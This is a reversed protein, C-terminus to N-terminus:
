APPAAGGHRPLEVVRASPAAALLAEVSSPQCTFLLVQHNAAIEAIVEAMHATRVPDFNVLVDDMVFPLPTHAVMEAALGFRLCLYLQESTGRSLDGTTLRRGAHDIIVIEGDAVTVTSYHGETIQAFWHEARALVAPQREQEYRALTDAVITRAATLTRWEEVADALRTRAVEVRLGADAVDSSRSLLELERDADHHARIAAEHADLLTPLLEVAAAREAEWRAVDGDALEARLEDAAGRGLAAQVEADAREADAALTRARRWRELVADAGPDDTAGIESWVSELEAEAAEASSRAAAARALADDRTTSLEVISARAAADAALREALRRVDGVPDASEGEGARSCLESARERWRSSAEDLQAREAEAAALERLASRAREIATFFDNVADVGLDVPVLREQKWTRWAAAVSEVRLDIGAVSAEAAAAAQRLGVAQAGLEERRQQDDRREKSRRTAEDIEAARREVDESAPEAPLDLVLASAHVRTRLLEIRAQVDDRARAADRIESRLNAMVEPGAVSRASLLVVIGLVVASAGTLVLGAAIPGADSMVAVGGAVLVAIGVVMFLVGISSTRGRGSSSLTTLGALKGQAADLRGTEVALDVLDARLQRLAQQHRESAVSEDAPDDVADLVALEADVAELQALVGDREEIAARRAQSLGETVDGRRRVEDAAPISVDFAALHERDWDPGLRELHAALETRRADVLPDLEALRASRASEAGLEGVLAEIEESLEAAADDLEIAERRRDIAAIDAEAADLAARAAARDSRAVGLRSAVDDAMGEPVEPGVSVDLTGLEARAEACRQQAPWAAILADGRAIDARCADVADRDVEAATALADVEERRRVLDVASATASALDRSARRADDALDRIDCRGRPRLLESRRADLADLATRATRGGGVIGAAFVRDRVEDSDLLEFSDLEGLGFAFVNAFLMADAHGLLDALRHEEALAGDPGRVSFSRPELHREITWRADAGDRVVVAGGHRGGHVPEHRRAKSRGDPFGFLVGRLFALLTSKGAENPGSVITLGGPLDDIQTGSFVGFGDIRWGDIRM